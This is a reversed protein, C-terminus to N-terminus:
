RVHDRDRRLVGRDHRPVGSLFDVVAATKGQIDGWNNTWAYAAARRGRRGRRRRAHGPRRPDRGLRRSRPWSAAAVGLDRGDGRRDGGRDGDGLRDRDDPDVFTALATGVALIADRNDWLFTALAKLTPMWETLTEAVAKAAQQMAPMADNAAATLADVFDKLIPLLELGITIGMTELSGKLQEISGSLNHLKEAGVSEASVKGMAAAM